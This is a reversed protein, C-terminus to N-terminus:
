LDRDLPDGKPMSTFLCKIENIHCYRQGREDPEAVYYDKKWTGYKARSLIRDKSKEWAKEPALGKKVLRHYPAYNLLM